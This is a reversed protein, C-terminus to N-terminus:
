EKAALKRLDSFKFQMSDLGANPGVGREEPPLQEYRSAQEPSLTQVFTQDFTADLSRKDLEIEELLTQFNDMDSGQDPLQSRVGEYLANAQEEYDSLLTHYYSAQTYDLDLTKSISNVRVNYKGYPGERNDQWNRLRQWQTERNAALRAAREEEILSTVLDRLAEDTDAPLREDTFAMKAPYHNDLSTPTSYTRGLQEIRNNLQALDQRLMDVETAIQHTLQQEEEIRSDVLSIIGVATIVVTLLIITSTYVLNTM